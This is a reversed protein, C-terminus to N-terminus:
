LLTKSYRIKTVFELFREGRIAMSMLVLQFKFAAIKLRFNSVLLSNLFLSKLCRTQVCPFGYERLKPMYVM